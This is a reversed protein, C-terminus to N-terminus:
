YGGGDIYTTREAVIMKLELQETADDSLDFIDAFRKM